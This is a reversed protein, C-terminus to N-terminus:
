VGILAGIAGMILIIVFPNKKYKGALIITTIFMIVGIVDFPMAPLLDAGLRNEGMILPSSMTVLASGIMGVTAPRVAMLAGKVAGSNKYKDTMSAILSILIFSPIAVCVTATLSGLFGASEFGVYTASNIAVPGPTAQAIAIINAFTEDTMDSFERISDHILSIIALGGGFGLAGIKFFAWALRGYIM